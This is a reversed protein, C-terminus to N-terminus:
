KSAAAPKKKQGTESAGHQHKLLWHALLIYDDLYDQKGDSNLDYVPKNNKQSKALLGDLANESLVVLAAGSQILPPVVVLPIEVSTGKLIISLRVDSKGKQPLADLEWKNNSLRRISKLNAGKLSFSPTDAVTALDITITAHSKGDTVVIAPTQVIGAEHLSSEDFLKVLRKLNRIEKYTRFRDLVSQSSKLVPHAAVSKAEPVAVVAATVERPVQSNGGSNASENQYQPEERREEKRRSERLPDAIGSLDQSVAIAGLTSNTQVTSTTSTVIGTNTVVSADTTRSGNVTSSKDGGDESKTETSLQPVNTISEAALQSGTVSYINSSFTPKKAPASGKKTFTILALGGTGKIVGGTIFVIRIFGPNATNKDMLAGAALAGSTVQPDKLAAADYYITLDVGSAEPLDTATISYNTGDSVNLTIPAAAESYKSFAVLVTLLLITLTLRLNQM